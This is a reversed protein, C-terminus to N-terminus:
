IRGSRLPQTFIFTDGCDVSIEVELYIFTDGCDISVEGESCLMWLLMEIRFILCIKM